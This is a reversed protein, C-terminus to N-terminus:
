AHGMQTTVNMAPESGVNSLLKRTLEVLRERARVEKKGGAAIDSYCKRIDKIKGKSLVREGSGDSKKRQHLKEALALSIVTPSFPTVNTPTGGAVV